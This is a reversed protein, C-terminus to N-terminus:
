ILNEKWKEVLNDYVLKAGEPINSSKWLPGPKFYRRMRCLRPHYEKCNYDIYFAYYGEIIDYRDFEKLFEYVPHSM